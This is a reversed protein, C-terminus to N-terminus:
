GRSSGTLKALDASYLVCLVGRDADDWSEETPGLYFYDLPSEVYSEGVYSEFPALCQEFAFDGIANDGPFASESMLIEAFVENDHPESCDILELASVVDSDPDDFCDGAAIEDVATGGGCAAAVLVLALGLGFARKM